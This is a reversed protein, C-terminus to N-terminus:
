RSEVAKRLGSRPNDKSSGSSGPVGRLIEQKNALKESMEKSRRYSIFRPDNYIRIECYCRMLHMGCVVRQCFVCNAYIAARCLEMHGCNCWPGANACWECTNRRDTVPAECYLILSGSEPKRKAEIKKMPSIAKKEANRANSCEANNMKLESEDDNIEGCQKAKSEERKRHVEKMVSAYDEVCHNARASRM